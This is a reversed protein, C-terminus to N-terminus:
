LAQSEPKDPAAAAVGRCASPSTESSSILRSRSAIPSAVDEAGMHCAGRDTCVSTSRRGLAARCRQQVVDPSAAGPQVLDAINVLGLRGPPPDAGGPGAVHAIKPGGLPFGEM